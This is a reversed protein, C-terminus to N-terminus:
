LIFLSLNRQLINRVLYIIIEEWKIIYTVLVIGEQYYCGLYEPNPLVHVVYRM